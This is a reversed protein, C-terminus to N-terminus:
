YRYAAALGTATPMQESPVVLVLGGREAVLDGLDDLLDDVQPHNLDGLKIRGTVRDLQGPIQSEAEILLTAIRGVAAAEAVQVIDDSGLDKSRAQAFEEGLATLRAHYRPEIVRWARLRLEEASASEPNM